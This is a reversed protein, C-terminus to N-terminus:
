IGLNGYICEGIEIVPSLDNYYDYNKGMFVAQILEYESNM